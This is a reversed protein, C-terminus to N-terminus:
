TFFRWRVGFQFRRPYGSYYPTTFYGAGGLGENVYAVKLFITAAKIDATLFVNAVAYNRMTFYDQVYFQQTSPSYAYGRFRSQYYLEAGVQGLLAKKFVHTQYYVRSETVLAPIRLGAGDGGQTYTGQNDVFVKGVRFRHRAFGIILQKNANDGTLQAPGQLQTSGAFQGYYILNTINVLAASAELAHDALFPLRQQLRVTLQNTLTNSFKNDTGTHDWQNHNGVFHQQTLDPAVSSTLVEASLPGTRIRGRLWYEGLANYGLPKYEGAVEVVYITRYNFAANGGFFVQNYTSALPTLVNPSLFGAAVVPTPSERLSASRYRGYLNYEVRDTRGLLGFTNEAQRYTVRDATLNTNLQNYAYFQGDTVGAGTAAVSNNNNVLDNDTYGNYQRRIDFIHYATVGRGLLRYSHFLRLEDRDDTNIAYALNVQTRDYVFLNALNIKGRGGTTDSGLPLIGGQEVARHRTDVLSVLLHYRENDNQYRAFFIAANHEVLGENTNTALIKNSAIREYTAGISFNKRLSRSYTIEFVQEGSSSQIYRFFSYPSRSDYFPVQSGERAFRDFVNRGLRAGLAPNPQYLLRRSASGVTGLDQQFTSDHYWFRTQSWRVLSTDILVGRTSDRLLDAERIVRTTKPGYLVKTSDDVIQAHGLLPAGLLLGCCLLLWRPAVNKTFVM